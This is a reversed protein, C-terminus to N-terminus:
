PEQDAREWLLTCDPPTMAGSDGSATYREFPTATNHRTVAHGDNYLLNTSQFGHASHSLAASRFSFDMVLAKGANGDAHKRGHFGAQTERYLYASLVAGSGDWGQKVAESTMPDHQLCGLQLPSLGYDPLLKGLGFPLGGYMRILNISSGMYEGNINPIRDDHDAAYLELALGIQKLNNICHQTLAVRKAKSLAPLLMAALIAIVAIVTLLELLTFKQKM